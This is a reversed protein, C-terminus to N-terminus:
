LPRDSNNLLVLRNVEGGPSAPRQGPRRVLGAVQGTETIVVTGARLGEDLTLFSATNHSSSSVVPYITLTGSSIPSLVTFKPTPNGALLVAPFILVLLVMWFRKSQSM